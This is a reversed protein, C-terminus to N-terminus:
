MRASLWLWAYDEPAKVVKWRVPNQRVFECKADLASQSRLDLVLTEDQWVAGNGGLTRRIELESGEKLSVLISQVDFPWGREAHLAQLVLHAHDSMVVAAFLAYHKGHEELYRALARDRAAPTLQIDGLARFTAFCPMDGRQFHPTLPNEAHQRRAAEADAWGSKM